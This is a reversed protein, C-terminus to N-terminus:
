YFSIIGFEQKMQKVVTLSFSAMVYYIYLFYLDPAM